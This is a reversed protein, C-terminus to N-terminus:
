ENENEGYLSLKKVVQGGNLGNVEEISGDGFVFGLYPERYGIDVGEKLATGNFIPQLKSEGCVASDHALIVFAQYGSSEAGIVDAFSGDLGVEDEVAGGDCSDYHAIKVPEEGASFGVLTIGRVFSMVYGSVTSTISSTGSPGGSSIIEYTTPIPQPLFDTYISNIGLTYYRNALNQSNITHVYSLVGTLNLAKQAVGRDARDEPMTLGYLDMQQLHSLVADDDGSFRYLTWIIDSYGLKMAEFYELPQYIQPIFRNQLEPYDRAIKALALVNNEKVDTVIRARKNSQLWEALSGLTCNQYVSNKRVIAKFEKLTKKGEPELGFSAKYNGYWDHLCVLEDDSTWSFDIEFLQYHDFNSNLADISNTYTKGNYGGGANAVAPLFQSNRQLNRGSKLIPQIFDKANIAIRTEPDGFFEDIAGNGAIIGIYPTRFGINKWQELGIDAFLNTFDRVGCVASDHTLIVFAGFDGSFHNIDDRFKYDSGPITEVAPDCTDLHKIIIPSANSNLGYLTLGRHTSITSKSNLNSVFSSGSFGGSSALVYNGALINEPKYTEPSGSGYNKAFDLKRVREAYLRPEGKGMSDFFKRFEQYTLTTEKNLSKVKIELSGLTGYAICYGKANIQYDALASVVACQDVWLLRQDSSLEAVQDVLKERSDFGFRVENVGLNEDLTLLAPYRVRRAGLVLDTNVYDVSIGNTIQPFSWFNSIFGRYDSLFSDIKDVKEVLSSESLLNRGFGLGTIKAGLLSLLTPAADILAAPKEIRHPEISEALFMLLNKREGKQLMDSASNRMALHDSSIIIITDKYSVSSRVHDVFEGVM